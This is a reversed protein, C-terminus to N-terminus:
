RRTYTLEFDLEWSGDDGSKEWRANVTRGDGSFTGVFRQSFSLPTFDPEDRLLTWERGDFTMKYVRVVGRSDFYHQTYGDGDANPGIVCLSSPVPPDALSRQLLFRGGLEPEFTTTGRLDFLPIEVVWEGVLPELRELARDRPMENM